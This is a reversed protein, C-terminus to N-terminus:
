VKLDELNLTIVKSGNKLSKDAAELIATVFLSDKITPLHNEFQELPTGNEVAIASSIFTKISIFGYKTDLNLNGFLNKNLNFFYPNIVSQGEDVLVSEFGRFRQDSDIIGNTGIIHIEQYTMSPTESPDTWGAIHYSVFKSDNQAIWEIQTEILDPTDIGYVKEAVGYQAIARVKQPTCGTIFGVLHIYHSGLYHNINHGNKGAWNKFIELMDRRQTQKTFIHQINGYKGSRYEDKLILNVEDYVKHYDVLGLVKVTKQLSIIDELDKVKVVAPKVVMFHHGTKITDIILQKHTSDPTAILVAGPKPLNELAIKYAKENIEGISPFFNINPNWGYKKCIKNVKERLKSLKNGDRAAIFISDVLNQKRLELISPLLVGLDKDTQIKGEISTSGTSYHGGGIILVNIKSTM